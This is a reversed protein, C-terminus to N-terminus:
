MVPPINECAESFKAFADMLSQAMNGSCINSFVANTGTADAFAKLRVNESSEPGGCQGAGPPVAIISTAWRGREGGKVGDFAAVYTAVPELGTDCYLQPPNSFISPSALTSCDNEDTLMVIALLADDRLFGANPGAIQDVLALKASELPMEYPSGNTGVTAACSFAAAVNADGRQLYVRGGPFNCGSGTVLKGDNPTQFIDGPGHDTTTIGIHYDLPNGASNKYNEIVTAFQPFATALAAQQAAMSGSNDIVFLIDIKDCAGNTHTGGGDVAFGGGDIFGGGGGDISGGGSADTGGNTQDDDAPPTPSCAAVALAASALFLLSRVQRM